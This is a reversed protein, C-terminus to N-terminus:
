AAEVDVGPASDGTLMLSGQLADHASRQRNRAPQHDRDAILTIASV